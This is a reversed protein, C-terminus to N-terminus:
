YSEGASQAGQVEMGEGPLGGVGGQVGKRKKKGGTQLIEPFCWSGTQFQNRLESTKCTLNLSTMHGLDAVAPTGPHIGLDVILPPSLIGLPM